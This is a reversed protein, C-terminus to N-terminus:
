NENYLTNYLVNFNDKESILVDKGKIEYTIPASYSMVKLVQELSEDLLTGTFRFNKLRESEFRISIDFKREMDVALKALTQRDIIWKNEKWSIVPAVDVNEPKFVHISKSKHKNQAGSQATSRVNGTPNSQISSGSKYYTLKQNPRLIVPDSVSTENRKKIKVAGQILTTEITSDTPYAKVNFKTGLATVDIFPTSVIFKRKKDKAVEFYGEGELEVRRESYGYHTSYKLKSGANLTVKTGDSLIFKARAGRPVILENFNQESYREHQKGVYYFLTSGISFSIVVIAAIKLFWTLKASVVTGQKRDTKEIRNKFRVFAKNYDFKSNEQVAKSTLWIEVYDDFYQKNAQKENIWANLALLEKNSLNNKLYGIILEDVHEQNNEKM